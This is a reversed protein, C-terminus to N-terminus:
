LAHFLFPLDWTGLFAKPEGGGAKLIWAAAIVWSATGEPLQAWPHRIVKWLEPLSGWFNKKISVAKLGKGGM